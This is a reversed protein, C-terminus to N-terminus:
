SYILMACRLQLVHPSGCCARRESTRPSSFRSAQRRITSFANPRPITPTSYSPGARSRRRARNSPLRSKWIVVRSSLTALLSAWIKSTPIRRATTVTVKRIRIRLILSSASTCASSPCTTLCTFLRSPIRDVQDWFNSIGEQAPPWPRGERFDEAAISLREAPPLRRCETLSPSRTSLTHVTCKSIITRRVYLSLRM